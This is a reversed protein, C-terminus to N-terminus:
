HHPLPEVTTTTVAVRVPATAAANGNFVRAQYESGGLVSGARLIRVKALKPAHGPRANSPALVTVHGRYRANGYELADPYPVTVTRTAGAPVTAVGQAHKVVASAALASLSGALPLAVVVAAVTLRRASSRTPRLAWVIASAAGRGAVV